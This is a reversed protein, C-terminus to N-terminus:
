DILSIGICAELVWLPMKLSSSIVSWNDLVGFINLKYLSLVLFFLLLDKFRLIQDQHINSMEAQYIVKFSPDLTM